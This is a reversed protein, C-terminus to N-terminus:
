QGGWLTPPADNDVTPDKEACLSNDAKLIRIKYYFKGKGSNDVYNDRWKFLKDHVKTDGDFVGSNNKFVIGDSPFKYPSNGPLEWHINWRGKQTIPLPDPNASIGSGSPDCGTVTVRVHCTGTGDCNPPPPGKTLPRDPACAGLIVISAAVALARTNM